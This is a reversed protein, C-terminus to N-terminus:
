IFNFVGSSSHVTCEVCTNVGNVGFSEVRSVSLIGIWMNKYCDNTEEDGFTQIYLLIADM